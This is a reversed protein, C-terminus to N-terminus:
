AFWRQLQGIQVLADFHEQVRTPVEGGEILLGLEMNLTLASETLNASSVLLTRADAVAFKAHVVGRGGTENQPRLEDPWIYVNARSTVHPGLAAAREPELVLEVRVGRDSAAALARGIAMVRYVAFSVVVLRVTSANVLQLLAQDTRRTGVLATEPGTWVLSVRQRRSADVRERACRLALAVAVAPVNPERRWARTLREASARYKATPVAELLAVHDGGTELSAAMAEIASPSLAEAASGIAGLLDTV